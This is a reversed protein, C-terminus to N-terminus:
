GTIPTTTVSSRSLAACSGGPHVPDAENAATWELLVARLWWPFGGHTFDENGVAAFNGDPNGPGAVIRSQCVHGDVGVPRPRAARRQPWRPMSAPRSGARQVGVQIGRLDQRNRGAGTGVGDVGPVSEQGFIGVKGLGHEVGTQDPDPRGRVGDPQQPVLDAGALDGHADAGRQGRCRRGWPWDGRVDATEHFLVAKRHGDLGGEAAASAAQLHDALSSSCQPLREVRRDAFGLCGEAAFLAEHLLEQVPGRWTSAWIRASRVAIDDHHAGAVARQLAPVLFEDLLRRRREQSRLLALADVTEAFAM